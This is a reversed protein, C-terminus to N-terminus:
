GAETKRFVSVQFNQLNGKPTVHSHREAEVPQFRGPALSDVEAALAEPSYRMVPLGSCSEPGDDAFTAIIAIGGSRLARGMTAVYAARDAPETLFHFVARDHWLAFSGGPTWETVDAAIWRVAEARAGIRERSAHLATASLDLVTLPGYGAELLRDVLRSAGGGVDVVPDGPLAFRSVLGFSLAPDAEFWTLAEEIRSEYVRDWHEASSKM